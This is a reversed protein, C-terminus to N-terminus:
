LVCAVWYQLTGPSLQACMCAFIGASTPPNACWDSITPVQLPVNTTLHSLDITQSGLPGVSSSITFTANAYDFGITQLPVYVQYDGAPDAIANFSTTANSVTVEYQPTAIGSNSSVQIAGTVEAIGQTDVSPATYSTAIALSASDATQLDQDQDINSETEVLDLVTSVPKLAEIEQLGPLALVLDGLAQYLQRRPVANMADIATNVLSRNQTAAGYLWAGLDGWCQGVLTIDSIVAGAAGLTKNPQKPLVNLVAGLSATGGVLAASQDALNQANSASSASSAITTAALATDMNLITTLVSSLAQSEAAPGSAETSGVEFRGVLQPRMGSLLGIPSMLTRLWPAIQTSSSAPPVLSAFSQTLFVANIRDMLDLSIQDFQVPTGDSLNGNSIVASSNLSIQDVDSRANIIAKLLAQLTSQAKSTDMTNAPLAQFAQLENLRRGVLIADLTLVARSIQGLQTGYTSLAPLDQINLTAPASSHNGQTLVLSAMGASSQGSPNAYVPVAATVTGDAAVRMAQETFSFGSSNSFNVMVPVSANVGTTSIYLPTLPAPSSTSLSTIALSQSSGIVFTVAASTGGATTVTVNSPGTAAGSAISFVATIQTGSVVNVNSVAVGPNSVSISAGAVFNTGTLAVPVANGLAGTSPSVSALTPAPQTGTGSGRVAITVGAQSNAGGVNIVVPVANGPTVTQPVLLNVQVVGAVLGPSGGAYQVTASIGGITGTVKQVPQPAPSGDLTGDAGPPNTQGEGTGYVFVYSGPAAPNSASNLTGDQNLIAGPGKGSYDVTFIGPVASVVPVTQAASTQGQYVVQVQTATKGSVEYPVVASVQNAQVYVLPAAVSDFLVQVGALTTAVKGNSDLQLGVLTAPGMGSGFIVVIEGPSAGGGVYDAANVIGNSPFVPGSANITLSFPKSATAGANDTVQVTFTFTGPATPVGSLLAGLVGGLTTLSIGAPLNGAIVAWSKYPTAGGTASVAQSYPVGVNGVPLPSTTIISVSAGSPASITLPFPSSTAGGPNVVTIVVTVSASGQSPILTAPVSASLQSANVYSTSLPSGNWQVTSGTLFGSGNVTLTFAPGGSTASSPSLSTISPTPANITFTLAPSTLGGPNQVTVSASGQSAILSAPLSASLQSGSVYSTSLPSGNWQVASGTLFGSGNVTLTFAPGGATASNPSLSILLPTPANITFTLASSTLGGPNLVTVSASGPSAILSAAVSATLQGGSVYSTPIASGDWQVTSGTLFGSGNVTM